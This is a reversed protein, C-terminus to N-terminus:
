EEPAHIYAKIEELFAHMHKEQRPPKRFYPMGSILDAKEEFFDEFKAKAAEGDYESDCMKGIFDVADGFKDAAYAKPQKYFMAFSAKIGWMTRKSNRKAFSVTNEDFNNAAYSVAAFKHDVYDPDFRIDMEIGSPLPLKSLVVMKPGAVVKAEPVGLYTCMMFNVENLRRLQHKPFGKPLKDLNINPMFEEDYLWFDTTIKTPEDESSWDNPLSYLAQILSLFVKPCTSKFVIDLDSIDLTKGDKSLIMLLCAFDEPSATVKLALMVLMGVSGVVSVHGEMVFPKLCCLVSHLARIADM